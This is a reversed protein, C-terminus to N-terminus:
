CRPVFEDFKNVTFEDSVQFVGERPLQMYCSSGSRCANARTEEASRDMGVVAFHTPFMSRRSVVIDVEADQGQVIRTSTVQPWLEMNPNIAGIHFSAIANTPARQWHIRARYSVNETYSAGPSEIKCLALHASGQDIRWRPDWKRSITDRGGAHVLILSLTGIMLLPVSVYLTRRIHVIKDHEYLPIAAPAALTVLCAVIWLVALIQRLLGNSGNLDSMTVVSAFFSIIQDM